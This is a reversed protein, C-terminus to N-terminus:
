SQGGGEGATRLMCVTCVCRARGLYGVWASAGVLQRGHPVCCRGAEGPLSALLGARLGAVDGGELGRLERGRRRGGDPSGQVPSGPTLDYSSSEGGSLQGPGTSTSGGGSGYRGGPQGAPMAEAAGAQLEEEEEEAAEDVLQLEEGPLQVVGLSSDSSGSGGGSLSLTARLLLEELPLASPQAESPSPLLPVGLAAAAALAPAVPLQLPTPTAHAAPSAVNHAPEAAPGAAAFPVTTNAQELSVVALM